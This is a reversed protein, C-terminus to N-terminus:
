SFSKLYGRFIILVQIKLGFKAEFLNNIYM